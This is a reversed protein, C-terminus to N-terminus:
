QYCKYVFFGCVIISQRKLRVCFGKRAALNDESRHLDEVVVAALAFVVASAADADEDDDENGTTFERMAAAAPMAVTERVAAAM